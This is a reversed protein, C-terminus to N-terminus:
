SATSWWRRGTVFSAEDSLLFVVTARFAAPDPAAAFSRELMPTLM